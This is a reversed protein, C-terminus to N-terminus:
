LSASNAFQPSALRLSYVQTIDALGTYLSYGFYSEPLLLVTDPAPSHCSCSQSLLLVTVPALSHSCSTVPPSHLASQPLCSCVTVPAPSHLLLVTSLLLVTAPASQAPAPSHCPPRPPAPSHCSCSQSLLLVTVPAPSHCSCSQSLLLVTVNTVGVKTEKLIQFFCTQPLFLDRAETYLSYGFCSEPLLLVTAESDPSFM